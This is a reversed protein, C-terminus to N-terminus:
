TSLYNSFSTMDQIKPQTQWEFLTIPDLSTTKGGHPNRAHEGNIEIEGREKAAKGASM